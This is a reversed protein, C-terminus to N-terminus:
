TYIKSFQVVSGDILLIDYVSWEVGTRTGGVDRGRGM